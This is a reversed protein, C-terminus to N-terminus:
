TDGPINTDIRIDSVDLAKNSVSYLVLPNASSGSISIQLGLRVTNVGDWASKMSTRHQVPVGNFSADGTITRLLKPQGAQNLTELSQAFISLTDASSNSDMELLVFLYRFIKEMEANEAFFFPFTASFPINVSGVIGDLDHTLQMDQCVRGFYDVYVNDFSRYSPDAAVIARCQGRIVRDTYNGSTAGTFPAAWRKAKVDYVYEVNPGVLPLEPTSAYFGPLLSSFAWRLMNLTADYTVERPITKGRFNDVWDQQVGEYGIDSVSFGDLKMPGQSQDWFYIANELTYVSGEMAGVGSWLTSFAYSSSSGDGEIVGIEQEKFVYLYGRYNVLATIPESAGCALFNTTAPWYDFGSPGAQSFWVVNTMKIRILQDVANLQNKALVAFLRQTFETAMYLNFPPPDNPQKFGDNPITRSTAVIVTDAINDVYTQTTIALTVQAVFYFVAGGVTTRYINIFTLGSEPLVGLSTSGPIAAPIAVNVKHGAALTIPTGPTTSGTPKSPGVVSGNADLSYANSENTISTFGDGELIQYGYTWTYKYIGAGLTGGSGGDTVAPLVVPANAGCSLFASSSPDGTWNLKKPKGIGDTVLMVNTIFDGYIRSQYRSFRVPLAGSGGADFPMTLWAPTTMDGSLFIVGDGGWIFIGEIFPHWLATRLPMPQATTGPEANGPKAYATLTWTYAFATPFAWGNNTPAQVYFQADSDKKVWWAVLPFGAITLFGPTPDDYFPVLDGVNVAGLQLSLTNNSGTVAITAVASKGFLGAGFSNGLASVIQYYVQYSGNALSGAGISQQLAPPPLDRSSAYPSPNCLQKAGMRLSLASRTTFVLNSLASAQSNDDFFLGRRTNLGGDVDRRRETKLDSIGAM